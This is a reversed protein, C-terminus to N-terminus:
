GLCAPKRDILIGNKSKLRILEVRGEGVRGFWSQWHDVRASDPYSIELRKPEVWRLVVQYGQKLKLVVTPTDDEAERVLIAEYQWGAAGGGFERYFM